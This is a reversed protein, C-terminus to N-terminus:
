VRQLVEEREWLISGVSRRHGEEASCKVVKWPIESIYEGFHGLKLVV